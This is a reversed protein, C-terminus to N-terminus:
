SAVYVVPDLLFIFVFLCFFGNCRFLSSKLCDLTKLLSFLYPGCFWSNQEDTFRMSTMFCSTKKIYQFHRHTMKNRTLIRVM